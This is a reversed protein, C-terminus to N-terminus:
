EFLDIRAGHLHIGPHQGILVCLYAADQVFEVARALPFVRQDEEDLAIIAGGGLSVHIASGVGQCTKVPKLFCVFLKQSGNVVKTSRLGIKTKTKSPGPQRAGREGQEFLISRM